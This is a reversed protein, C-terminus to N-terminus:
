RESQTAPGVLEAVVLLAKGPVGLQEVPIERQFLALMRGAAEPIECLMLQRLEEGLGPYVAEFRRTPDINDALTQEDSAVHRTLLRVLHESARAKVFQHASLLEGRRYRGMGVLLNTLFQGAHFLDSSGDAWARTQEAIHALRQELGARDLLVRYRNTKALSLEEEDFIAYELLHGDRYLVKVGHETERYAWLVDESNPLWDTKDRYREQVGTRVIVYFDHDSWEDPAYDQEAMSGVAVLGLVEARQELGATLQRTFAHYSERDV